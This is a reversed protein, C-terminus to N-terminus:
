CNLGGEWATRMPRGWFTSLNLKEGKGEFHAHEIGRLKENSLFTQTVIHSPAHVYGWRSLKQFCCTSEQTTPVNKQKEGEAWFLSNGM